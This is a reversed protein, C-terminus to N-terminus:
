LTRYFKKITKIVYDIENERLEPFLPISLIESALKEAVPFDGKKYGLHKFAKQLHVPKPYHIGTQINNLELFKRLASRYSTRIVFLHWSSTINKSSLKTVFDLDGVGSLNQIYIRAIRERIKNNKNLNRLKYRLIAAQIEDLRSVGSVEDSEYRRREGYVRLKKLRQAIKRNNTIVLGGDGFAGLNKTPYFSYCGVDGFSGVVRNNFTAGHAQASDEIIYIGKSIIHKLRVVNVPVGYLHVAIIAKTKSSLGNLSNLDINSDESVDVLKVKVGSRAAAFVTPYANAPIVVEDKKSLKLAQLALTIADTGSAVGICYKAKCYNAFENEFAVVNEGLTFIGKKIVESIVNNIDKELIINQRKLDFIPVKM